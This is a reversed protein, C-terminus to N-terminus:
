SSAPAINKVAKICYFCTNSIFTIAFNDVMEWITNFASNLRYVFFQRTPFGIHGFKSFFILERFGKDIIDM